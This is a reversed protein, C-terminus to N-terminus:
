CLVLATALFFPRSAIAGAVAPPLDFVDTLTGTFVAQPDRLRLFISTELRHTWFENTLIPEFTVPTRAPVATFPTKAITQVCYLTPLQPRKAFGEPLTLALANAYHDVLLLVTTSLTELVKASEEDHLPVLRWNLRGLATLLKEIRGPKIQPTFTDAITQAFCSGLHLQYHTAIDTLLRPVENKHLLFSGLAQAVQPRLTQRADLKTFLETQTALVVGDSLTQVTSHLLEGLAEDLSQGCYFSAYVEAADRWRHLLLTLGVQQIMELLTVSAEKQIDVAVSKRALEVDGFFCNLTYIRDPVPYQGLVTYQLISPVPVGCLALERAIGEVQPDSMTSADKLTAGEFRANIYDLFVRLREPPWAVDITRNRVALSQVLSQDVVKFFDTAETTKSFLRNYQITFISGGSRLSVVGFTSKRPAGSGPTPTSM